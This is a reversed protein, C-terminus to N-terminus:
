GIVSANQTPDEITRAAVYMYLAGAGVAGRVSTPTSGPDGIEDEAGIKPSGSGGDLAAEKTLRRPIPDFGPDLFGDAVSRRDCNPLEEEPNV